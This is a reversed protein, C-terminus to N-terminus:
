WRYPPSHPVSFCISCYFLILYHLGIPYVPTTLVQWDYLTGLRIMEDHITRIRNFEKLQADAGRKTVEGRRYIFNKHVTPSSVCLVVGVAVGGNSEWIDILERSPLVHAGELVLSVGKKISDNM